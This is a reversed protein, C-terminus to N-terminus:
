SVTPFGPPQTADAVNALLLCSLEASGEFIFAYRGPLIELSGGLTPEKNDPLTEFCSLITTRPEVHFLRLWGLMLARGISGLGTFDGFDVIHLRGGPALGAVAAALAGRWDPIMSLSYSFIARDFCPVGFAAPELAEAYGHAVHIRSSLSTRQIRERATELMQSSADLGFLRADPYQGAMCILNRATGCGLEVVREHPALALKRILRDRGLLYYKRTFDYFYRQHRYVDDMLQDHSRTSATMKM